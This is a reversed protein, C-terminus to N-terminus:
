SLVNLMRNAVLALIYCQLAARGAESISLRVGPLGRHRTWNVIYRHELLVM